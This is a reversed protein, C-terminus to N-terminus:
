NYESPLVKDAPSFLTRIASYSSPFIPVPDASVCLYGTRRLDIMRVLAEEEDVIGTRREREEREATRAANWDRIMAEVAMAGRQGKGGVLDDWLWGTLLGLLLELAARWTFPDYAEILRTNIRDAISRFDQESVWPSLTEPFINSFTPALDGVITYDRPIRIIRTAAALPSGAPVHPNQHPFCHHRENWPPHVTSHFPDGPEPDHRPPVPTRPPTDKPPLSPPPLSPQSATPDDLHKVADM